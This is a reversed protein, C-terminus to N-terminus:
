FLSKFEEIIDLEKTILQFFCISYIFSFSILTVINIDFNKLLFLNFFITSGITLLLKIIFIITNTKM